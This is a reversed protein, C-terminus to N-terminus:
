AQGGILFGELTEQLSKRETTSIAHNAAMDALIANKRENSLEPPTVPTPAPTAAKTAMMDMMKSMIGTMADMKECLAKITYADSEATPAEMEPAETEIELTVGKGDDTVAESKFAIHAAQLAKEKATGDQVVQLAAEMGIVETLAKFQDANLQPMSHEKVDFATYPNAAKGPPLTSIEYTHYNWFVGDRKEAADYIFGHSLEMKHTRYYAKFAQSRVDPYFDGVAVALRGVKGAWTAKGHGTGPIHYFWLEPYDATANMFEIDQQIAKEPFFEYDKDQYANTYWAIWQNEGIVKFGYSPRPTGQFWKVFRELLTVKEPALNDLTELWAKEEAETQPNIAKIAAAASAMARGEDGTEKYVDNFVAVWQKRKSEDLEQVYKPLKPDASGSYPM